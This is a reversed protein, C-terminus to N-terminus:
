CSPWPAGELTLFTLPMIPGGAEIYACADLVEQGRLPLKRMESITFWAAELSEADPESKPPTDGTPKAAVILRVRANQPSPTHEIRIIGDVQIAIGAEEMTEREAATVFNEGPEVRGAPLYWLQGHKCEHVLLFREARRVVALVFFWTPIPPRAM